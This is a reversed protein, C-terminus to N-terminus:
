VVVYENIGLISIDKGGCTAWFNEHVHGCFWDSFEVQELIKDLLLESKYQKAYEFLKCSVTYPPCHTCIYDVCFNYKELNYRARSIDGETIAEEAWWIPFGYQIEFVRRWDKDHSDAGGICLITKGELNLIEGPQVAYIRDRIKWCKAGMCEVQEMAMIRPWNEHNGLVTFLYRDKKILKESFQDLMAEESLSPSVSFIFGFDGLQICYKEKSNKLWNGIPGPEGHIDSLIYM